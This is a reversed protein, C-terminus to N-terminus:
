DLEGALTTAELAPGHAMWRSLLRALDDRSFPKSLYDDMGCALCRERDGEMANATLAVIVSRNAGNERARIATTAAYGDLNPMQCDMLVLDYSTQATADLAEIGDRAIDVRLGFAELLSTAVLRNVENDEALLVTGSFRHECAGPDVTEPRGGGVGDLARALAGYLQSPGVPKTLWAGVDLQLPDFRREARISEALELGDVGPMNVDLIALDYSAAAARLMSHADAASAAGHVLMGAAALQHQLVGRNTASDDVVLIRRGALRALHPM